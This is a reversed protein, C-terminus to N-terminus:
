RAQVTPALGRRRHSISQLGIGLIVFSSHGFGAHGCAAVVLAVDATTCAARIGVFGSPKLTLTSPASPFIAKAKEKARTLQAACLLGRQMALLV